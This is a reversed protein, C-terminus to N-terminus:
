DHTVSMTRAATVMEPGLKGGWAVGMRENYGTAGGARITVGCLLKRLFRMPHSPRPKQQM